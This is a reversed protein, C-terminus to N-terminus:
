DLNAYLEYRVGISDLFETVSVVPIGYKRAKQAKGSMTAADGAVLLECQKTVSTIPGFDHAKALRAALDRSWDEGGVCLPADGTFCVLMGPRWRVPPDVESVHTPLASMGLAQVIADIHEREGTTIRGDRLSAAVLDNAYVGHLYSVRAPEIAFEAALASLEHREQESVIRDCLAADLFALYANESAGFDSHAPLESALQLLHSHSRPRSSTTRPCTRPVGFGAPATINCPLTADLKQRVEANNAVLELLLAGVAHADGLAQHDIQHRIGFRDCCASLTRSTAGCLSSAHMTCFGHLEALIGIREFELRLMRMDFPANHAVLPGVRLAAAVMPAVDAFTPAASLDRASLGHIASVEGSVDRMPNVLTSWEDVIGADLDLTVVGIELVSDSRWLGTTELDIVVVPTSAEDGERAEFRGKARSM